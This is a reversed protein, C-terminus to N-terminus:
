SEWAETVVFSALEGRKRVTRKISRLKQEGKPTCPLYVHRMVGSGGVGLYAADVEVDHKPIQNPDRTDLWSVHYQKQREHTLM